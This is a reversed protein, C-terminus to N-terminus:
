FNSTLADNSVEVHHYVKGGRDDCMIVFGRLNELALEVQAYDMENWDNQEFESCAM